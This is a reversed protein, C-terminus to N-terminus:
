QPTYNHLRKLSFECTNEINDAIEEKLSISGKELLKTETDIEIICSFFLKYETFNYKFSPKLMENYKAILEKILKESLNVEAIKKITLMNKNESVKDYRFELPIDLPPLLTSAYIFEEKELEEVPKYLYQDFCLFNFLTRQYEQINPNQFQKNGAQEINKVSEKNKLSAIFPLKTFDKEKFENWQKLITNRNLLKEIKGNESLQFYAKNKIFETSKVLEFSGALAPPVVEYLFEELETKAYKEELNQELLYQTKQNIYSTLTNNAKTINIQECRYRAKSNFIFNNLHVDTYSQTQIVKKQPVPIKIQQGHGVVTSSFPLKIFKAQPNLAKIAEPTTNYKEAIFSLKEERYVNHIKYEM